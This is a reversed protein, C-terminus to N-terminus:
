SFFFMFSFIPASVGQEFSLIIFLIFLSIAINNPNINTIYKIRVKVWNNIKPIIPKLTTKIEKIVIIM